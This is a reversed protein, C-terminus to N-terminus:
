IEGLTAILSPLFRVAISNTEGIHFQIGLETAYASQNAYFDMYEGIVTHNM